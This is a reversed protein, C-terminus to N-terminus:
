EKKSKINYNGVSNFGKLLPDEVEDDEDAGTQPAPRSKLWEAEAAKIKAETMKQINAFVIDKGEPTGDLEAEATKKALDADMGMTIYRNTAETLKITNELSKVYAEHQEAQERKAEAEQEEATQRARLQKTVEGKEKLAKDLAAKNREKEAREQALQAMLSEVSVEQEKNEQENVPTETNTTEMSVDKNEEM